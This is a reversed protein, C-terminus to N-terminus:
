ASERFTRLVNLIEDLNRRPTDLRDAKGLIAAIENWSSLSKNRDKIVIRIKRGRLHGPAKAVLTGDENVVADLTM